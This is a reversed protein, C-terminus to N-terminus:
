NLQQRVIGAEFLAEAFLEALANEGFRQELDTLVHLEDSSLRTAMWRDLVPGDGGRVLRFPPDLRMLEVLRKRVEVLARQM